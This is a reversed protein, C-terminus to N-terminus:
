SEIKVFPFLLTSFFFGKEIERKREREREVVNGGAWKGKMKVNSVEEKTKIHRFRNNERNRLYEGGGEPYSWSRISVFFINHIM